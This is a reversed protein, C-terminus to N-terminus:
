SIVYRQWPVSNFLLSCLQWFEIREAVYAMFDGVSVEEM